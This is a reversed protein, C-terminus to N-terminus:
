TRSTANLAALPIAVKLAVDSKKKEKTKSLTDEGQLQVLNWGQNNSHTSIKCQFFTHHEYLTVLARKPVVLWTNTSGGKGWKHLKFMYFTM